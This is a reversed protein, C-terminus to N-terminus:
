LVLQLTCQADRAGRPAAPLSLQKVRVTAAHSSAVRSISPHVSPQVAAPSPSKGLWRNFVAGGPWLGDMALDAHHCSSLEEEPGPGFRRKTWCSRLM